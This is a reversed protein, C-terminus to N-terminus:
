FFLRIICIIELFNLFLNNFIIGEFLVLFVDLLIFFVIKLLRLLDILFVIM